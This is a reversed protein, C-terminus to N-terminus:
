KGIVIKVFGGSDLTVRSVNYTANSVKVGDHPNVKVFDRPLIFEVDGNRRLFDGITLHGASDEIRDIVNTIVKLDRLSLEM